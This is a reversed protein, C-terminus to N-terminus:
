LVPAIRRAVVNTRAPRTAIRVAVDIGDTALDVHRDTLDLDLRLRPHEAMFQPLWRSLRNIGYSLPASIRLIGAPSAASEGAAAEAEALGEASLPRDIDAQGPLAPDAHAHRLLILERM